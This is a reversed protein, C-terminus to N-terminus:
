LNLAFSYTKGSGTQGYTFCSSNYGAICSDVIPKGVLEYLKEQSVEADAIYDFAFNKPQTNKAQPPPNLQVFSPKGTQDRLVNIVTNGMGSPNSEQKLLPRVRVIVKVGGSNTDQFM